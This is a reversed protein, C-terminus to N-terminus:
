AESRQIWEPSALGPAPLSLRFDTTVGTQCPTFGHNPYFGAVLGNKATARYEGILAEAGAAEAARAVHALLCTEIGHGIVRCSMLFSDIRWGAQVSEVLVVAVLGHQGFRDESRLVFGLWGRDLMGELDAVSHRRTTLNFQNTRQLLQGVRPLADPGLRGITVRLGLSRRYEALSTTEARLAERGRRARYEAARTRDEETIDFQEFFPLADLTARYRAPDRPLEVTVVQPLLQRVLECELPSDDIFVMTDLGIGLEEAISRLNEVKSSWNVRIAAFADERLVMAEHDRLVALADEPNNKSNVALLVGRENLSRLGRQFDVFEIGPSTGGLRIGSPGDEGVIGGWLTNDLDLVICKKTLGKLPVLYRVYARALDPLVGEGLRMSALYRLKPDDAQGGGRWAQLRELDLLHTRPVDALAAGLRDNLQRLWARRGSPGADLGANGIYPSGFEHVVIVAGCRERLAHVWDALRTVAGAGAATLRDTRAGGAVEPVLDDLAASVFVIEAGSRHLGSTEDLIELSLSNFPAVYVEPTLGLVRAELDLYPVLPDITFTSLLAIRM